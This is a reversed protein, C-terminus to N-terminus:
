SDLVPQTIHHHEVEVGVADIRLCEAVQEAIAVSRHRGGRCAVTVRVLRQRANAYSFLLSKASEAIRVVTTMAGPTRLVHDRVDDDLGTRHRLAPDDHPNRLHFLPFYLGDDILDLADPHRTGISQILVQVMGSHTQTTAM